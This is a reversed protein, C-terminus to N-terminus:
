SNLFCLLELRVLPLIMEYSIEFIRQMEIVPTESMKRYIQLLRQSSM